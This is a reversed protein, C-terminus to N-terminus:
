GQRAGRLLPLRVIFESGRDLGSSAARVEGGHLEVLARVLALGIGLGGSTAGTSLLTGVFPATCTFSTVVLTAGMLFVGAYGDLHEIWEPIDRDAHNRGASTFAINGYQYIGLVLM